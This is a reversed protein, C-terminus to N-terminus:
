LLTFGGLGGFTDVAVLYETNLLLGMDCGFDAV